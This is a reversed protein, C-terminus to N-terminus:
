HLIWNKVYRKFPPVIAAYFFYLVQSHHVCLESNDTSRGTGHLSPHGLKHPVKAASSSKRCFHQMNGHAIIM